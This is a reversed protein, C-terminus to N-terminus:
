GEMDPKHRTEANLEPEIQSTSRLRELEVQHEMAVERLAAATTPDVAAALRFCREIQDLLYLRRDAPDPSM